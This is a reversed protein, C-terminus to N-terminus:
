PRRWGCWRPTTPRRRADRRGHPHRGPPARVDPDPVPRRGRHGQRRAARGDAGPHGHGADPRGQGAPGTPCGRWRRSRHRDPEPGLRAALDAHHRDRGAARHRHRRRDAAGRAADGVPVRDASMEVAQAHHTTMDRAFGAEVSDDGPRTLPPTLLGGAYGSSCGSWWSSPWRRCATAARRPRGAEDTAAPPGDHESDTTAPATMATRVPQADPHRPRAAHHRHRHRGPQLLATPGEVSANM